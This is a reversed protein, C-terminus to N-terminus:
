VLKAIIAVVTSVIFMITLSVGEIKNKSALLTKVDGKVEKIDDRIIDIVEEKKCEHPM